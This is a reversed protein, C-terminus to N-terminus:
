MFTPLGVPCEVEGADRVLADAERAQLEDDVAHDAHM